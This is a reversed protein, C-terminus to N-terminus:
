PTKMLVIHLTERLHKLSLTEKLHKLTKSDSLIVM